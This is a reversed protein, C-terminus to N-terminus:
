LAKSIYKYHDFLLQNDTKSNYALMMAWLEKEKLSSPEHGTKTFMPDIFKYYIKPQNRERRIWKLCLYTTRLM